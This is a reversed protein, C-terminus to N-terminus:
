KMGMENQFKIILDNMDNFPFLIFIVNNLVVDDVDKFDNINIKKCDAEILKKTEDIFIKRDSYKTGIESKTYSVMCILNIKIDKHKGKLFDSLFTELGESINDNFNYLNLELLLNQNHKIVDYLADTVALKFSGQKRNYAKSEGVYLEIDSSGKGVHIADIGHRELQSNTTIPMKHVLPVADFINILINYLLLESFQGQSILQKFDFKHKQFILIINQAETNLHNKLIYNRKNSDLTYITDFFVKEDKELVSSLETDFQTKTISSPILYSPKRFTNKADIFM